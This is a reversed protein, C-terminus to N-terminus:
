LYVYLCVSCLICRHFCLLHSHIICVQEAVSCFSKRYVTTSFDPQIVSYSYVPHGLFLLGSDPIMM